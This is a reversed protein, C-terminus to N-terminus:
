EVVYKEKHMESVTTTMALTMSVTTLDMTEKSVYNISFEHIVLHSGSDTINATVNITYDNQGIGNPPDLDM